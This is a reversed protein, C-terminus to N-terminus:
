KLTAKIVVAKQCTQWFDKTKPHIKLADEVAIRTMNRYKTTKSFRTVLNDWFQIHKACQARLFMAAADHLADKQFMSPNEYDSQLKYAQEILSVTQMTVIAAQEKDEIVTVKVEILKDDKKQEVPTVTNVASNGNAM